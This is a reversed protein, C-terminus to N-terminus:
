VYKPSMFRCDINRKIKVDDQINKKRNNEM